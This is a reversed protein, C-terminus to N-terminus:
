RIIFLTAQAQGPTYLGFWFSIQVSPTPPKSYIDRYYEM